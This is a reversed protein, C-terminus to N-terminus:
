RPRFYDLPGFWRMPKHVLPMRVATSAHFAFLQGLRQRGVPKDHTRQIMDCGSQVNGEIIVPGRDTIAVDFGLMVRDPYLAHAQEVMRVVEPWAPLVRGDIQAGTIPHVKHWVCPRNSWSDSAPEVTGTAVDVKSVGGGQHFNDVSKGAAFSFKLTANTVEFRGQENRCSTVRLSTLGTSIDRLAPHNQLCEQILYRGRKDALTGLYALLEAESLVEGSPGQYGSDVFAWKECGRGGKGTSPKIFIDRKPLGIGDHDQARLQWDQGIEDRDLTVLVIPADVGASRCRQSFLLKDTLDKKRRGHLTMEAKARRHMLNHFGGKLEYRLVYDNAYQRREDRFLEFVYYKDPPISYLTAIVAQEWLQRLVSKGTQERVAPGIKRTFMIAMIVFLIPWVITLAGLLVLHRVGMTRWIFRAYAEHIDDATTTPRKLVSIFLRYPSCFPLRTQAM